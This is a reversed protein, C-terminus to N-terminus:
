FVRIAEREVQARVYRDLGDRTSYGIEINPGFADRIAEYARMFPIFGFHNGSNPDVFVDIDSDSDGEGRAHSGFLYLASVGQARLVPETTKLKGIVEDRRV